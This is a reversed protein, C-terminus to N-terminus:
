VIGHHRVPLERALDVLIDELVGGLRTPAFTELRHACNAALRVRLDADRALLEMQRALDEANDQKFTAVGEGGLWAQGTQEAVLSPCGFAMAELLLVSTLENRWKPLVFVDATALHALLEPKEVWGTWTVSNTIGLEDTLQRLKKEEPGSGSMILRADMNKKVLAFARLMLDFGKEAIMRGSTIFTASGSLARREEVRPAVVHATARLAPADVFDPMIVAHNRKLGFKEYAVQLIPNTFYFYDIRNAIMTGVVRELLLRLKQKLTQRPDLENPWSILERNYFALIPKRGGFLRYAGAGYQFQGEVHYVDTQEEYEKLVKYIGVQSSILSQNPVRVEIVPYPLVGDMKNGNSFVTMVRVDHGLSALTRVKLDLDPVSGGATSFNLKSTVFIIRM